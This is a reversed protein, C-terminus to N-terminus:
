EIKACRCIVLDVGHEYCVWGHGGVVELSFTRIAWAHSPSEM